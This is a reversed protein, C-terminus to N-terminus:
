GLLGAPTPHEFLRRVSIDMGLDKRLQSVLRVAKLSNGGLEFFNDDVKVESVALIDAYLACVQLVDVPLTRGGLDIKDAHRSAGAVRHRSALAARDVKGNPTLPLSEVTVMAQPVMYQPLAASIRELVYDHSYAPGPVVYAVLEYAGEQGVPVVAAQRVDPCGGLVAEVEGLEVRFGNIKVQSDARGVFELAGDPRRTALDGTRYMRSGPSGYPDPVFREATAGPRGVYGRALGPGALYMEGTRGDTVRMLTEDLVHVRTGARARGLPVPRTPLWAHDIVQHTTILTAETPGYMHRVVTHPCADRVQAIAGSSVVDGGVSVELLPAFDDPSGGAIAGFLGATLSVATLQQREILARLRISDLLGPPAVVVQGGNLLPVWLEYTSLDFAHPSHFLVRGRSSAASWCPDAALHVVSAHSIGVGKPRGTSGSTYMVYALQGGVVTTPDPVRIPGEHTVLEQALLVSASTEPLLTTTVDDVVVLPAGVDGLVLAMRSEPYGEHLPVYVGGAKAVGLLTVILELSRRLLLGVPTECGVGHAGLASAVRDSRENLQGYTLSRAGDVVATADPSEAVQAAFALPLGAMDLPLPPMEVEQRRV